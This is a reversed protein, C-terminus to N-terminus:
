RLGTAARILAAVMPAMTGSGWHLGTGAVYLAFLISGREIWTKTRDQDAKLTKFQQENETIRRGLEQVTSALSGLEYAYNTGTPMSQTQSRQSGHWMQAM